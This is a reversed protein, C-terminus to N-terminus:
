AEAGAGQAVLRGPYLKTRFFTLSLREVTGATNKPVKKAAAHDFFTCFRAPRVAPYPLSVFSSS